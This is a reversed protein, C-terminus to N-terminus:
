KEFFVKHLEVIKESIMSASTCMGSSSMHSCKLINYELDSTPFFGSCNSKIGQVGCLFTPICCNSQSM